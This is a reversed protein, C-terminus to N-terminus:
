KGKNLHKHIAPAVLYILAGIVLSIIIEEPHMHIESDVHALMTLLKM